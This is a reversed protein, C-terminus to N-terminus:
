AAHRQPPTTQLPPISPSFITLDAIHKLCSRLKQRQRRALYRGFSRLSVTAQPNKQLFRDLLNQLVEADQVDGMRRQYNAFMRLQPKRLGTFDPSVAEVMYRFKKFAIRTRHVAESDARDVDEYRRLVEAYAASVSDLVRGALMEAAEPAAAEPSHGPNELRNCVVSKWKELKHKRLALVGSRVSRSLKRERRLLCDHLSAVEPFQSLREQLFLKQVHTDRLEGLIKLRRKLKKAARSAGDEPIIAAVLIFHTMLRRTAVRLQHVHIESPDRRCARLQKRYQNWRETLADALCAGPDKPVRWRILPISQAQSPEAHPSSPQDLSSKPNPLPPVSIAGSLMTFAPEPPPLAATNSQRLNSNTM